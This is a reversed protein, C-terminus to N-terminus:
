AVVAPARWVAAVPDWSLDALRVTTWTNGFSTRATVTGDHISRIRFKTGDVVIPDRVAPPEHTLSRHWAM